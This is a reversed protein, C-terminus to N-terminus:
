FIKDFKDTIINESEDINLNCYKVNGQEDKFEFLYCDDYRSYGGNVFILVEGKNFRWNGFTFLQKVIYTSGKDFIVKEM